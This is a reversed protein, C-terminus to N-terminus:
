KKRESRQGGMDFLRISLYGMPFKTESIGTTKSRARLVDIETPCYDPDAIRKAEDFFYPASTMLYFESEHEFVKAMCSDSWIAAVAQGLRADLTADPDPDLEYEMVYRCNAQNEMQEVEIELYNMADILAKIGELLNKYVINRYLMLEEESYGNYHIIKMQKVITSKGSNENGLLLLKCESWLKRSDEQLVRDIADSRRKQVDTDEQEGSCCGM